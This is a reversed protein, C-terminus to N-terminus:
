SKRSPVISPDIKRLASRMKQRARHLRAEVASTTMGLHGALKTYSWDETYKLLLIEADRPSLRDLAQQVIAQREDALLWDLPNRERVDQDTPPVRDAYREILKRRRGLRRRHQLAAVVVLRYLWPAASAPDRVQHGKEIATTAVEQMVDDAAAADGVRSLAVTRLWRGNRELENPWDIREAGPESQTATADERPMAM